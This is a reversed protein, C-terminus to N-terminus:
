SAWPHSSNQHSFASLTIEIEVSSLHPSKKMIGLHCRTTCSSCRRSVPLNMEPHVTVPEHCLM